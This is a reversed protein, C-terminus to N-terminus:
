GRHERRARWDWYRWRLYLRPRHTVRMIWFWLREWWTPPRLTLEFGTIKTVIWAGNSQQNMGGSIMAMDGVKWNWPATVTLTHLSVKM